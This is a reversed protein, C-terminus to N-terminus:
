SFKSIQPMLICFHTFFGLFPYKFFVSDYSSLVDPALLKWYHQSCTLQEKNWFISDSRREKDCSEAFFEHNKPKSIKNNKLMSHFEFKRVHHILFHLFSNAGFKKHLMGKIKVQISFIQLTLHGKVKDYMVNSFKWYKWLTMHFLSFLEPALIKWNHQPCTLQEQNWFIADSRKKRQWM